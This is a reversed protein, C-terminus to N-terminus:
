KKGYVQHIDGGSTIQRAVIQTNKKKNVEGLNDLLVIEFILKWMNGCTEVHKWGEMLTEVHRAVIQTNGHTEMLKWLNNKLTDVLLRTM